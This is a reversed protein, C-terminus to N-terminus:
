DNSNEEHQASMQAEAAAKIMNLFSDLRQYVEGVSKLEPARFAGRESALEIIQKISQLDDVTLNANNEMSTNLLLFGGPYM